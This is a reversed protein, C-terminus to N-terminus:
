IPINRYISAISFDRLAKIGGELLHESKNAQALIEEGSSAFDCHNVYYELLGHQRIVHATLTLSKVQSKSIRTEQSIPIIDLPKIFKEILYNLFMPGFRKMYSTFATLELSLDGSSLSPNVNFAASGLVKYLDDELDYNADAVKVTVGNQIFHFQDVFEDPIDCTLSSEQDHTPVKFDREINLRKFVDTPGLVIFLVFGSDNTIHFDDNFSTVDKIRSSQIIGFRYRPKDYAKNILHYLPSKNTSQDLFYSRPFIIIEFSM